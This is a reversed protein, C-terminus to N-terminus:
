WKRGDSLVKYLTKDIRRGYTYKTGEGGGHTHVAYITRSSDYVPSGSQGGATDLTYYVRLKNNVYGKLIGSCGYM